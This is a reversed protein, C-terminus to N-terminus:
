EQLQAGPYTPIRQSVSRSSQVCFEQKLPVVQMTPQSEPIAEFVQQCFQGVPGLSHSQSDTCGLTGRRCTHSQFLHTHM